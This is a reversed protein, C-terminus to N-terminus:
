SFSSAPEAVGVDPRKGDIVKECLHKRKRKAVSYTTRQHQPDPLKESPLHLDNPNEHNM